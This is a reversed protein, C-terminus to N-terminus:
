RTNNPLQGFAERLTIVTPRITPPTVTITYPDFYLTDVEVLTVRCRKGSRYGKISDIRFYASGIKNDSIFIIDRFADIDSSNLIIDAELITKGAKEGGIDNNYFENFLTRNTWEGIPPQTPPYGPGNDIFYLHSMSYGLFIAYPDRPDNKNFPSLYYRAPVLNDEGDNQIFLYTGGLEKNLFYFMPKTKERDGIITAIARENFTVVPVPAPTETKITNEATAFDSDNVVSVANLPTETNKDRGKYDTSIFDTGESFSFTTKSPTNNALDSTVITDSDIKNSWDRIKYGEYFTDFVDFHLMRENLRDATIYINFMKILDTLFDKQKYNHPIIDAYTVIEEKSYLYDKLSIDIYSNAMFVFSGTSAFSINLTDGKGLYIEKTLEDAWGVGNAPLTGFEFGMYSPPTNPRSSHIRYSVQCEETMQMTHYMRLTIIHIGSTEATYGTETQIGTNGTLLNYDTPQFELKLRGGHLLVDSGVPTFHSRLFHFDEKYKSFDRNPSLVLQDLISKLYPTINLEYGNETAIQNLIHSVHLVPFIDIDDELENYYRPIGYNIYPYKIKISDQDTTRWTDRIHEKTLAHSSGDDPFNLETLEKEGVDKVLTIDNAALVVDYYNKTVIELYVHGRLITIEDEILEGYVKKTFDYSDSNLHFAEKFVKATNATHLIRIPKTFSTKRKSYDNIDKLNFDTTVTETVIDTVYHNGIRLKIM